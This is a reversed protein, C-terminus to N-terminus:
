GDTLIASCQTCVRATSAVPGGCYPCTHQHETDSSAVPVLFLGVALPGLALGVVLGTAVHFGRREAAVYGIAAGLGAWFLLGM